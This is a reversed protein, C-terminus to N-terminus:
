FINLNYEFQALQALCRILLAPINGNVQKERISETANHKIHTMTLTVYGITKGELKLLYMRVLKERVDQLCDIHYYTTFEEISSEFNDKLLDTEKVQSYSVNSDSLQIKNTM